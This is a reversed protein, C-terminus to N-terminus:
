GLRAEAQGDPACGWTSPLPKGSITSAVHATGDVVGHLFAIDNILPLDAPPQDSARRADEITTSLADSTALEIV